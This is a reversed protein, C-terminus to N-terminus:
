LQFYMGELLDRDNQTKLLDWPDRAWSVTYIPTTFALVLVMPRATVSFVWELNKLNRAVGQKGLAVLQKPAFLICSAIMLSFGSQFGGAKPKSM